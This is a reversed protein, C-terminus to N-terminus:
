QSPNEFIDCRHFFYSLVGLVATNSRATGQGTWGSYELLLDFIRNPETGIDRLKGYHQRFGEAIREGRQVDTASKSFLQEVKAEVVRGTLLSAQVSDTLGNFELKRVDPMEPADLLLPSTLAELRSIVQLLDDLGVALIQMQSADAGGFAQALTLKPLGALENWFEAVGWALITLTPHQEKIELMAANSFQGMESQPHNHVFVWERMADGLTQRAKAFDARIKAATEGDKMENATRAPAYCQYVRQKNLSVCDLGGDGQTVRVRQLDGGPHLLRVVEAFWAQFDDRYKGRFQREYETRQHLASPM